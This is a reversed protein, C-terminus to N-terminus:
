EISRILASRISIKATYFSIANLSIAVAFMFFLWAGDFTNLGGVFWVGICPLLYIICNLVGVNFHIKLRWYDPWSHLIKSTRDDPFLVGIGEKLTWGSISIPFFMAWKLADENISMTLFYKGIFEGYFIYIAFSLILFVFEYSIFFVRLYYLAKM